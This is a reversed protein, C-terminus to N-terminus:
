ASRSCKSSKRPAIVGIGNSTTSFSSEAVRMVGADEQLADDSSLKVTLSVVNSSCAADSKTNPHIQPRRRNKPHAIVM